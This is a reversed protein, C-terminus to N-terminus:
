RHVGGWMTPGTLERIEDMSYNLADLLHNNKDEPEDLPMKNPGLKWKYNEHEFALDISTEVYHVNYQNIFRIGSVVSGPGKRAAVINWGMGQMDEIDKPNASDAYITAGKSIGLEEMRASLMNNTFGPEYVKQELWLEQNHNEVEILAVPANFGWDLGYFKNYLGPMSQVPIWGKYIRGRVGESILGEVMTYFYEGVYTLLNAIFSPHLNKINDKYTSFISLLTNGAKPVAKYYGEPIMKDLAHDILNYWKKWIWHKKAPPNFLGVIQINGKITRLSDDLQQFDDESIEEMEEILIHTAGAISKLKATQKGSSKKFGKSLLMNGTPIHMASMQSENLQFQDDLEAEVIRDKFDRWLSERIDAQIERMLYGRFYEPKKILDLFYQTGTFSGGRGRGGWLHIYRAKTTFLERYKHSFALAIEM